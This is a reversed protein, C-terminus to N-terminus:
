ARPQLLGREHLAWEIAVLAERPVVVDWFRRPGGQTFGEWHGRAGTGKKAGVVLARGGGAVRLYVGVKVDEAAYGGIHVNSRRDRRAGLEPPAELPITRRLLGFAYRLTLAGDELTLTAPLAGLLAASLLLLLAAALVAAALVPTDGLGLAASAGAGAFALALGVGIPTAIAGDSGEWRTPPAQDRHTKKLHSALNEGRVSAACCPCPLM